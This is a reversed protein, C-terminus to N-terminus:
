QITISNVISVETGDSSNKQFDYGKNGTNVIKIDHNSDSLDYSVVIQKDVETLYWTNVTKYLKGDVYVDFQGGKPSFKVTLGLFSGEANFELSDNKSESYKYGQLNEFGKLKLNKLGYAFPEYLKGGYIYKSKMEPIERNKDLSEKFKNFIEYSYVQYGKDNPHVNDEITLKEKTNKFANRMDVNILNYYQSVEEIVESYGPASLSHETTTIIEAKPNNSKLSVILSDYVHKFQELSLFGQDNQGYTVIILDVPHHNNNQFNTLGDFSTAGGKTFKNLKVNVKYNEEITNALLYPYSKSPDSAGTGEAISDGVVLLEINRGEKIKKYVGLDSVRKEEKIRIVEEKAYKKSSQEAAIKIKNNYDWYGVVIFGICFILSLWVSVKKM